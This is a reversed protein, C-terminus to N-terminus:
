LKGAKMINISANHDANMTNGCKVCKFCSQTKRNERSRFGCSSCEQSTYKPDVEIVISNHEKAKNKLTMKFAYPAVNLLSRNLGSKAKVNKGPTEVNGKASKTMNKVKLNEVVIVDNNRVIETAFLNMNYKRIRAIKKDIKAIKKYAKKCNKSQKQKKKKDGGIKRKLRKQLIEKRDQLKKMIELPYTKHTGDSLQIPRTIGLDIGMITNKNANIAKTPVEVILCLYWEDKEKVIKQGRVNGDIERHLRVRFGEKIKPFGYIRAYNKGLFEFEFGYSTMATLSFDDKSSKFKPEEVLVEGPKWSKLNKFFSSYADNVQKLVGFVSSYVYSPVDSLEPFDKKALTLDSSQLTSNVNLGRRKKTVKEEGDKISTVLDYMRSKGYGFRACNIKENIRRHEICLNYVKKAKRIWYNLKNEQTKSPYMRFKYTKTIIEM